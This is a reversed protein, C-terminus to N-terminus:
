KTFELQHIAVYNNRSLTNRSVQSPDWSRFCLSHQGKESVSLEHINNKSIMEQTSM